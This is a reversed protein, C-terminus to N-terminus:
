YISNMIGYATGRREQPAMRAVAARMVSEQAGMGVGWCAMGAVAWWFDGLFVLPASILSVLTALVMTRAGIRDFLWGLALAAIADTAMAVSYLVPILPPEVAGNRGWHFAILAFDVYGAAIFAVAAMYLWFGIKFGGADLPPPALEFDRPRPFQYRAIVLFTM